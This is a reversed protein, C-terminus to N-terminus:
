TCAVVMCHLAVIQSERVRVMWESYLALSEEGRRRWRGPKSESCSGVAAVGKVSSLHAQETTIRHSLTITSTISLSATSTRTSSWRGTVAPVRLAQRRYLVGSTTDTKSGAGVIRNVDHLLLQQM